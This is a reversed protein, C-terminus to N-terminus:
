PTVEPVNLVRGAFVEAGDGAGFRTGIAALIAAWRDYYRRRTKAQKGDVLPQWLSGTAGVIEAVLLTGDGLDILDGLGEGRMLNLADLAAQRQDDREKQMVVARDVMRKENFTSM